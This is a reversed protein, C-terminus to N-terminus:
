GHVYQAVHKMKLAVSYNELAEPVAINSSISVAEHWNSGHQPKIIKLV